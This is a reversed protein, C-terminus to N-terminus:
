LLTWKQPSFWTGQVRLALPDTSFSALVTAALLSFYGLASVSRLDLKPRELTKENQIPSRLIPPVSLYFALFVYASIAGNELMMLLTRLQSDSCIVGTGALILVGVFLAYIDCWFWSTRSMPSVCEVVDTASRCRGASQYWDQISVLWSQFM